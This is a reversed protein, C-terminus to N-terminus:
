KKFRRVDDWPKTTEDLHLNSDRDVWLGDTPCQMVKLDKGKILPNGRLPLLFSLALRLTKNSGDSNDGGFVIATSGKPIMNEVKRMTAQPNDTGDFHFVFILGDAAPSVIIVGICPTLGATGVYSGQRMKKKDYVAHSGARVGIGQGPIQPKNPADVEPIENLPDCLQVPRTVGPLALANDLLAADNQGAIDAPPRQRGEKVMGSPDTANTPNNGVYRYLNADGAAFSLPDQSLFRGAAADYWRADYYYLGTDADFEQGTYGVTLAVTPATDSLVNGFADYAVHKAISDADGIQAFDRVTGQNDTLLWFSDGAVDDRALVQDVAPGWLYRRVVDGEGDLELVPDDGAADMVYRTVVAAGPV